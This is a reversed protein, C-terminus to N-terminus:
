YKYDSYITYIDIDFILLIIYAIQRYLTYQKSIKYLQKNIYNFNYYLYSLASELNIWEM